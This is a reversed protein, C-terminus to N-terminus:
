NYKEYLDNYIDIARKINREVDFTDIVLQKGKAAMDPNFQTICKEIVSLTDNIDDIDALYGTENDIVLEPLAGRDSSVTPVEFLLSEFVGGLNESKSLYVFVDFGTIVEYVNSYQGTFYIRDPAMQDAMQKLKKEYNLNNGFTGGSIVLYVNKRKKLMEAFATMLIEHGKIGTKQYFKPPYIYSATGIILADDPLGFERKFNRAQIHNVSALLEQPDVFAYNLFVRNANIGSNLYKNCIYKSTGIWFDYKTSSYIDGYKFLINELHAPGVVQYVKPVRVKRLFMRMYLTTQTFWSHIIDPQDQKVYQRFVAGNGFLSKNIAFDFEYVDRCLAKYEDFHKGGPPIIVSFSINPAKEKIKKLLSIAWTAGQSTKILHLIHM